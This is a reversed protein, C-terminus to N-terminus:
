AAAASALDYLTWSGSSGAVSVAKGNAIVWETV